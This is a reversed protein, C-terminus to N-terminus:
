GLWVTPPFFILTYVIAQLIMLLMASRCPNHLFFVNKLSASTAQTSWAAWWSPTHQLRMFHFGVKHSWQIAACPVHTRLFYLLIYM